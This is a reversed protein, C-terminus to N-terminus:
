AASYRRAVLQNLEGSSIPFLETVGELAGLVISQLFTLM